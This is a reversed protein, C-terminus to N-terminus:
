SSALCVREAKEAAAVIEEFREADLEPAVLSRLTERRFAEPEFEAVFGRLLALYGAADAAQSLAAELEIAM